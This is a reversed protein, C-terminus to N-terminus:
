NDSKQQQSPKQCPKDIFFGSILILGVGICLMTDALNFTPWHKSPWYIVDIFDRVLGDNFIRDYLNGTLGATFLGLSLFALKSRSGSLFFIAIIILLAIFSVAVLFYRWGSAIGFAAGPNQAIILSLFGNVISVRNEPLRNLWQFVAQKSWLDLAIGIFVTLWFIIQSSLCPCLKFPKQKDNLETV